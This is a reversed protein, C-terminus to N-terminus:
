QQPRVSGVYMYQQRDQYISWVYKATKRINQETMICKWKEAVSLNDFGDIDLEALFTLRKMEYCICVFVFHYEDEVENSHCQKCIRNDADINQWRGTEIELPLIGCRLKSIISRYKRNMNILVYPEVCFNEKYVNYTRLKPFTSIKNKWNTCYKEQLMTWVNIESVTQLQHFANPLGIDNLIESIEYAWCKKNQDIEWQLIKRTLRESDLIMLRNWYRIMAVKRRVSSCTWGMDGQVSYNPAFNHVGLYARIARNQINDIKSHTKYGWIEAAYDLIPCVCSKYLKAYTYYGLGNLKRYKNLIAGLARGGSDALVQVTIDFDVYANLVIGLYKYRDVITLPQRSLKFEYESCKIRPKRFHVVKSKSNNFKIRWKRGWETVKDLMKQLDPENESLLVIDTGTCLSM